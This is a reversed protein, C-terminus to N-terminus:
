QRFALARFLFNLVMLYKFNSMSMEKATLTYRIYVKEIKLYLKSVMFYEVLLSM